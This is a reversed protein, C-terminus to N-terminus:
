TPPLVPLAMPGLENSDVVALVGLQAMRAVTPAPDPLALLNMMEM